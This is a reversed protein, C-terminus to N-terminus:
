RKTKDALSREAWRREVYEQYPSEMGRMELEVDLDTALADQVLDNAPGDELRAHAATWVKLLKANSLGSFRRGRKAYDAMRNFRQEAVVRKANLEAEKREEPTPPVPHGRRDEKMGLLLLRALGHPSSGGLWATKEHGHSSRVMVAQDHVWWCGRITTGDGGKIIMKQYDYMAVDMNAPSRSLWLLPRAYGRKLSLKM